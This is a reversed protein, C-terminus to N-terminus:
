EYQLYTGRVELFTRVDATWSGIIEDPSMDSAIAERLRTSGALLDFTEARDILTAIGQARAADTFADLVHVGVATADFSDIDEVTLRVGSLAVGELRPDPAIDLDRPVFDVPTFRVGALDRAELERALAAGDAWPAGVVTFVDYTGRGYSVSTAEFLVTAPYIQASEVTPLGPSPPIWLLGTSAWAPRGDWAQMDIVDLRLDDLGSIWGEGKIARALEGSTMGYQSPIPYQSIFSELDATRSYGSVTGGRYPVPRDLVVFRAGAEAAAQMALGMTSIYTYYRTGVDQLDYIVTDVGALMEPTPKRTSGYVSYIPTDTMEDIEDDVLEGADATGRM